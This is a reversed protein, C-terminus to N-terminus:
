SCRPSAPARSCTACTATPGTWNTVPRPPVSIPPSPGDRRLFIRHERELPAFLGDHRAVTEASGLLLVGGPLLSYHFSPIVTAQLDADMYILLNRCSVLNMRSFPPDRV